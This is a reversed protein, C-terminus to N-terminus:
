KQGALLTNSANRTTRRGTAGLLGHIRTNATFTLTFTALSALNRINRTRTISCRRGWRQFPPYCPPDTILLKPSETDPYDFYFILLLGNCFYTFKLTNILKLINFSILMYDKMM